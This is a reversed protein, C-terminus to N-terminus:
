IQQKFEIEKCQVVRVENSALMEDIKKDNIKSKRSPHLMGEHDIKRGTLDFRNLIFDITKGKDSASYFSPNKTKSFYYYRESKYLTLLKKYNKTKFTEEKHLELTPIKKKSGKVFKNTIVDYKTKDTFHYKLYIKFLGYSNECSFHKPKDKAYANGSLLLVMVVIGLLKKM